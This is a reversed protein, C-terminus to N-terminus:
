GMGFMLRQQDWRMPLDSNQLVRATLSPPQRGEVIATVLDPGLCSIGVLKGLRTRCRRNAAALANLSKDPNALVLRRAAMAEALLTLLKPDRRAPEFALSTPGPVVLRLQHGQRVRVIPLSLNIPEIHYTDAPMELAHALMAPSMALDIGVESLTVREILRALLDLREHVSGSRMAAAMLDAKGLM